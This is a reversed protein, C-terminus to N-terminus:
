AASANDGSRPTPTTTTPNEQPKEAAAKLAYWHPKGDFAPWLYSGDCRYRGQASHALFRGSKRLGVRKGCAPCTMMQANTM